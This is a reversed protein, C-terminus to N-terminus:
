LDPRLSELPTPPDVVVATIYPFGNEAAFPLRGALARYLVVGISFIDTRHDVRRARIQEPSMYEPTGMVSSNVTTGAPSESLVKSIGFDLLKAVRREGERAIFVNEPKIDRHVIGLDHAEQLADCVQVVWDVIEGTTPGRRLEASLEAGALLEMAIYTIGNPATDIDFVRVSHRSKLQAAARAEREFRTLEAGTLPVDGRIAKIAVSQGLRVHRAEYVVGMGGAGLRRVIEYRGDLLSGAPFIDSEDEEEAVGFM